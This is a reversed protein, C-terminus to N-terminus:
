KTVKEQEVEIGDEPLGVHAHLKNVITWLNRVQKRNGLLYGFQFVNAIILLAIFVSNLTDM